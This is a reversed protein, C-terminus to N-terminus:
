DGCLSWTFGVIDSLFVILYLNVVTGFRVPVCCRADVNSLSKYFCFGRGVVVWLWLITFTLLFFCVLSQLYLQWSFNCFEAIPMYAVFWFNVVCPCHQPSSGRRREGRARSGASAKRAQRTASLLRQASPEWQKNTYQKRLWAFPM